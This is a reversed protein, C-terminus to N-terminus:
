VNISEVVLARNFVYLKPTMTQRQVVIILKTLKLIMYIGNLCIKFIFQLDYPQKM